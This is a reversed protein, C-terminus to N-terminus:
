TKKKQALADVFAGPEYSVSTLGEEGTGQDQAWTDTTRGCGCHRCYETILVGGGHGRVGPNSECGGVVDYDSAWEHERETCGPEDPEIEITLSDTVGTESTYRVHCWWTNNAPDDNWCDSWGDRVEEEIDAPSCWHGVDANGDSSTYRRPEDEDADLAERAADLAERPGDLAARYASVLPGPKTGTHSM